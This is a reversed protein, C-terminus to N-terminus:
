FQGAFIDKIYVIIGMLIILFVSLLILYMLYKSGIKLEARKRFKM